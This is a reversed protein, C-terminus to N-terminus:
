IDLKEIRIMEEETVIMDVPKDWPDHPLLDRIQCAFALGIVLADDMPHDALFRDYYGGGYGIRHGQRDFGVGPVLIIEARPDDMFTCQNRDPEPINYAGPVLQNKDTVRYFDMCGPENKRCCPLLVRRKRNLCDDFLGWTDVEGNVPLYLMLTHAKKWVDRETIYETILKSARIKADGAMAKRRALLTSRITSKDMALLTSIQQNRAYALTPLKSL